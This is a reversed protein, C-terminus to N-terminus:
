GKRQFHLYDNYGTRHSGRRSDTRGDNNIGLFSVAHYLNKFKVSARNDRPFVRAVDVSVRSHIEFAAVGKRYTFVTGQPYGKVAVLVNKEVASCHKLKDSLARCRVAFGNNLKLCASYQVFYFIGKRCIGGILYVGWLSCHRDPSRYEANSGKFIGVSAKNGVKVCGLSLYGNLKEVFVSFRFTRLYIDGLASCDRDKGFDVVFRVIVGSDVAVGM